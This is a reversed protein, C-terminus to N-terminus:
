RELTHGSGPQWALKQQTPRVPRVVGDRVEVNARYHGVIREPTLVELASGSAVIEGKDIMVLTDPYQGALTLDHMTSVLTLSRTRRLEDLLELVEQQHGLDLATTPEDLLVVPASQALARGILVRQREGGSLTDLRRGAMDTLDLRNLVESVVQHDLERENGFPSLHPTRGLMVYDAVFMGEPVTPTQELYAIVHSRSRRSLVSEGGIEVVGAHQQRGALVRLLTSKGAGNPGIVGLWQGEEVTFGVKRLLQAQGIKVSVDKCTIM